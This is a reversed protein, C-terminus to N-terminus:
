WNEAAAAAGAEDYVFSVTGVAAAADGDLLEGVSGISTAPLLLELSSGPALLGMAAARGGAPEGLAHVAQPVGEFWCGRFSLHPCKEM